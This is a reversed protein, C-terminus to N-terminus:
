GYQRVREGCTTRGIQNTGVSRVMAARTVLIACQAGGNDRPNGPQHGVSGREVGVAAAAREGQGRRVTTRQAPAVQRRCGVEVDQVVDLDSSCVDSSWDSIRM